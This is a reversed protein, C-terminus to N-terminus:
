KEVDCDMERRASPDLLLAHCSIKNNESQPLGGEIPVAAVWPSEARELLAVAEESTEAGCPAPMDPGRVAVMWRPDVDAVARVEDPVREEGHEPPAPTLREDTVVLPNVRHCSLGYDRGQLNFGSYVSSGAVEPQTPGCAGLLLALSLLSIFPLRYTMGEVTSGRATMLAFPASAVEVVEITRADSVSISNLRRPTPGPYCVKCNGTRPPEAAGPGM